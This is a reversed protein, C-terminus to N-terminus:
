KPDFKNTRIELFTGKSESIGFHKWVSQNRKSLFDCCHIFQIKKKINSLFNTIFIFNVSHNLHKLFWNKTQAIPNKRIIKHYWWFWSRLKAEIAWQFQNSDASCYLKVQFYQKFSLFKKFASTMFPENLHWIIVYFVYSSKSSSVNGLNQNSSFQVWQEYNM